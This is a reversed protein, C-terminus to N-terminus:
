PWWPNQCWANFAARHAEDWTGFARVVDFTYGRRIWEKGSGSWVSLVFAVAHYSGSTGAGSTRWWRAWKLPKWPTLGPCDRRLMPFTYLLGRVFREAICPRIKEKETRPTFHFAECYVCKKFPRGIDLWEDAFRQWWRREHDNIDIFPKMRPGFM